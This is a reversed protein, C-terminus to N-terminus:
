ATWSVLSLDALPEELVGGQFWSNSRPDYVEIVDYYAEFNFQGNPTTVLASGGAVWLKGDASFVASLYGRKM